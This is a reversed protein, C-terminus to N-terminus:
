VLDEKLLATLDYKYELTSNCSLFMAACMIFRNDM